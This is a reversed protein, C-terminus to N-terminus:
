NVKLIVDTLKAHHYFSIITDQYKGNLLYKNGLWYSKLVKVGIGHEAVTWQTAYVIKQNTKLHTQLDPTLEICEEFLSAVLSNKPHKYVNSTNDFQELSGNNLVLIKDSFGLVDDKDHTAVLCTIHHEKFFQFLNRRLYNKQFTDIHSFPEDLLIVEPMQALARAIAVRQLQGGSLFQAKTHGFDSLNLLELLNDIRKNKYALDLNSLYKGINERVTIFPMINFNQAVYKMKDHGPVLHFAPGLVPENNWTIEGSIADHLGYILELLTSKGCGSSGMISLHEGKQLSFSVENLVHTDSNPYNFKIKQVNLM